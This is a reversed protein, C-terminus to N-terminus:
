GLPQTVVLPRVQRPTKRLSPVPCQLQFHEHLGRRSGGVDWTLLGSACVRGEDAEIVQVEVEARSRTASSRLGFQAQYGFYILLNLKVLQRAISDTTERGSGTAPRRCCLRCADALSRDAQRM